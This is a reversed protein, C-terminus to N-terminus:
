IFKKSLEFSTHVVLWTSSLVGYGMLHCPQITDKFLRDLKIQISWFCSKLFCVFCAQSWPMGLLFELIWWHGFSRWYIEIMIMFQLVFSSNLPDLRESSIKHLLILRDLQGLFNKSWFCATLVAQFSKILEGNESFGVWVWSILIMAWDPISMSCIYILIGNRTTHGLMGSWM